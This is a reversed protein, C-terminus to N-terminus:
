VIKVKKLYRKVLDMVTENEGREGVVDNVKHEPM